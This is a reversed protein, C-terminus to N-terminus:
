AILGAMVMDSTTEYDMLNTLLVVIHLAEVMADFLHEYSLVVVLRRLLRDAFRDLM